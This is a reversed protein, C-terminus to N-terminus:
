LIILGSMVNKLLKRLVMVTSHCNVKRHSVSHGKVIQVSIGRLVLLSAHQIEKSIKISMQAMAHFRIQLVLLAITDSQVYIISLSNIAV